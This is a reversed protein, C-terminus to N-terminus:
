HSHAVSDAQLPHANYTTSFTSAFQVDWTYHLETYFHHLGVSHRLMTFMFTRLRFFGGRLGLRFLWAARLHACRGWIRRVQVRIFLACLEVRRKGGIEAIKVFVFALSRQRMDAGQACRETILKLDHVQAFRRIILVDVIIEALEKGICAFPFNRLLDRHSVHQRPQDTRRVKGCGM